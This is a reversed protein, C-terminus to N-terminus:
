EDVLRGQDLRLVVDAQNALEQAHTVVIVCKGHNLALDKFIDIIEQQTKEDLNGTPEDAMIFKVDTALARAIAVRQQQGGSLKTVRKTTSDNEIGLFNLLNSATRKKNTPMKNKTIEMALLVNELATLYKILNYSQFVISVKQNRYNELGIDIISHNNLKIDGEMVHDLGSILSLFTTKGCGSPGVIAYFKGTEFQYSVNNLIVRQLGGDIYQHCLNNVQLVEM